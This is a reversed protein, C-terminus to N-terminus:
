NKKGGKKVPPVPSEDSDSQPKAPKKAPVKKTVPVDDEDDDSIVPKKPPVKKAAPTDDDEDDDSIVPKKPPVRKTTHVDDEEDSAVTKKAPVKKTTPPPVNNEEDDDSAVTRKTPTKKTVPIDEKDSNDQKNSGKKSPIIEDDSGMKSEADTDDNFLNIKKNYSIAQPTYPKFLIQHLKFGVGYGRKGQVLGIWVKSISFVMRITMGPKIINNIEKMNQPTILDDPANENILYTNIEKTKNDTSISFNIFPYKKYEKTPDKKSKVVADEPVHVIPSFSHKKRMDPDPFVMEKVEDSQFTEQLELAKEKLMQLVPDDDILEVKIKKRKSDEDDTIEEEKKSRFVSNGNIVEAIIVAPVGGQLKFHGTKFLYRTNKMFDNKGSYYKDGNTYNVLCMKQLGFTSQEGIHFSSVETKMKSIDLVSPNKKQVADKTTSM